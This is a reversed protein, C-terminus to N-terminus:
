LGSYQPCAFLSPIARKQNRKICKRLLGHITIPLLKFYKLINPSNPLFPTETSLNASLLRLAYHVFVDIMLWLGMRWRGLSLRSLCPSVCVKQGLSGEVVEVLEPNVVLEPSEARSPCFSDDSRSFLLYSNSLSMTFFLIM